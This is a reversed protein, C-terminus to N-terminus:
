TGRALYMETMPMARNNIPGLVGTGLYEKQPGNSQRCESSTKEKRKRQKYIDITLRKKRNPKLDHGAEQGGGKLPIHMHM